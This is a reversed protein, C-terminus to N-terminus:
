FLNAISDKNCSKVYEGGTKYQGNAEEKGSWGFRSKRAKGWAHHSRQLGQVATEGCDEQVHSVFGSLTSQLWDTLWVERLTVWYSILVTWSLPERLEGKTQCWQMEWTGKLKCSSAPNTAKYSVCFFGVFNIICHCREFSNVNIWKWKLESIERGETDSMLVRKKPKSKKKMWCRHPLQDINQHAILLPLAAKTGVCPLILCLSDQPLSSYEPRPSSSYHWHFELFSWNSM